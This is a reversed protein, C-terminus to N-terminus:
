KGLWYKFAEVKERSMLIDEKNPPTQLVIKLRSNSYAIVDKIASISSLFQRNLRFFREPELLDDLQDLTYDVIYKRGNKHYLWVIKNEGMFFDIEEAQITQLHEGIKVMFRMKYQPTKVQQTAIAMVQKMLDQSLYQAQMESPLTTEGKILRLKEFARKLDDTGIPKLLYDISNVRFARLAYEDFATTFIVPCNVPTKEFIEFSLGDALQIDFFALDPAANNKFWDIATKVSDLVALVQTDPEVKKLSFTLGEAALEEDEIIIIKMM